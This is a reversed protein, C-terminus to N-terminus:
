FGTDSLIRRGQIFKTVRKSVQELTLTNCGNLWAWWANRIRRLSGHVKAPSKIGFINAEECRQVLLEFIPFPVRFRRNFKKAFNTSPDLVDPHSFAGIAQGFIKNFRINEEMQLWFLILFFICQKKQVATVILSTSFHIGLRIVVHCRKSFSLLKVYNAVYYNFQTLCQGTDVYYCLFCLLMTVCNKYPSFNNHSKVINSHKRHWFFSLM